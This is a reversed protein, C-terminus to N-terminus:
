KKRLYIGIWNGIWVTIFVVVGLRLDESFIWAITGSILSPVIFQQYKSWFSEVSKITKKSKKAMYIIHLIPSSTTLFFKVRTM